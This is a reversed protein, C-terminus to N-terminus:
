FGGRAYLDTLTTCLTLSVAGSISNVSNTAFLEIAANPLPLRCTHDASDWKFRVVMQLIFQAGSRKEFLRVLRFRMRTEM